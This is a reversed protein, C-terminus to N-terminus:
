ISFYNFFISQKVPAVNYIAMILTLRSKRILFPFLPIIIAAKHAASNTHSMVRLLVKLRLKFLQFVILNTWIKSFHM